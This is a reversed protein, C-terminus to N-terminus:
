TNLLYCDYGLDKIRHFQTAIIRGNEDRLNAKSGQDIDIFIGYKTSLIDLKDIFELIDEDM